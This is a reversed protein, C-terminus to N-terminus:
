CLRKSTTKKNILYEFKKRRAIEYYEDIKRELASGKPVVGMGYIHYKSFLSWHTSIYPCSSLIDLNLSNLEIMHDPLDMFYPRYEKKIFGGFRIYVEMEVIFLVFVVSLLLLFLIEM